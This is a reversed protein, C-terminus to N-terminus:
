PFLLQMAKSLEIELMDKEFLRNQDAWSDRLQHMFVKPVPPLEQWESHVPYFLYFDWAVEGEHGLSKSFAKGVAKGPDFFQMVRRDKFKGVAKQAAEYSDGSMM